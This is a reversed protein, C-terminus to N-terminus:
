EKKVEERKKMESLIPELHMNIRGRIAALEFVKVTAQYWLWLAETETILDLDDSYIGDKKYALKVSM